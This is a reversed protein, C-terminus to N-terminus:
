LHDCTPSGRGQMQLMGHERALFSKRRQILASGSCQCLIAENCPWWKYGTACKACAADTVGRNLGPTATCTMGNVPPAPTSVPPIPTTVPAPSPTVPAPTAAEPAPPAPTLPKPTPPPTPPAPTPPGM